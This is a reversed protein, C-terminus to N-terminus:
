RWSTRRAAPPPRLGGGRHGPDPPDPARRREGALGGRGGGRRRVARGARRGPRAGVDPGLGRGLRRARGVLAPPPRHDGGGDVVPRRPPPRRPGRGADPRGGPHPGPLSRPRADDWRDRLAPSCVYPIALSRRLLPEAVPDIADAQVLADIVARAGPEDHHVIRAAARACALQAADGPADGLASRELAGVALDVADTESASAALVAILAAQDFRDRESLAAYRDPGIDVSSRPLGGPDGDFWLAVGELERSVPMARHAHHAHAVAAADAARGALLLLHWHLRILVEPRGAMPLDALDGDLVALGGAVDGTLGATAADVAGVLLRLLPDPHRASLARAPGSLALLRGLDGNAEAALTALALSVSEGAADDRARFGEILADLDATPPDTVARAHAAAAALLDRALGPPLNARWRDAVDVPLSGLTARVLDVAGRDRVRDDGVAIALDGAATLDGRDLLM